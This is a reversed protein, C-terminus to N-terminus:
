SQGAQLKLNRISDTLIMRVAHNTPDRAVVPRICDVANQFESLVFYSLCLQIQATTDREGMSLATKYEKVADRYRYHKFYLDALQTRSEV